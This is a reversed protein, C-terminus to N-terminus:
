HTSRELDIHDILRKRNDSQNEQISSVESFFEHNILQSNLDLDELQDYNKILYDIRHTVMMMSERINELKQFDNLELIMMKVENMHKLFKQQIIEIKKNM